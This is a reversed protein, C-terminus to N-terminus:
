VGISKGVARRILNAVFDRAREENGAEAAATSLPLAAIVPSASTELTQRDREPLASMIDDAVLVVGWKGREVFKLLTTRAHENSTVAIADVGALKFGLVLDSHCVITVSAKM